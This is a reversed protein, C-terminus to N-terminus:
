SDFRLFEGTKIYYAWYFPWVAGAMATAMELSLIHRKCTSLCHAHAHFDTIMFGVVYIFFLYMM